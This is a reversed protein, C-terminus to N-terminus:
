FPVTDNHTQQPLEPVPQEEDKPLWELIHINEAVIEWSQRNQGEQTLWNRCSLRGEVMVAMGKKANAVLMEAAGSWAQISVFTTETQWQSDADKYRRDNAISFNCTATGKPTRKLELDKSIRGTIQIRNINPMRLNM